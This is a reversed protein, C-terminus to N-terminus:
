EETKEKEDAYGKRLGSALKKVQEWSLRVARAETRHDFFTGFHRRLSLSMEFRSMKGRKEELEEMFDKIGRDFQDRDSKLRIEPDEELWIWLGRKRGDGTLFLRTDYLSDPYNLEMLLRDNDKMYHPM